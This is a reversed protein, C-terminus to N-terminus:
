CTPLLSRLGLFYPEYQNRFEQFFTSGCFRVIMMMLSCARCSGVKKGIRLRSFSFFIWGNKLGMKKRADRTSTLVTSTKICLVPQIHSNLLNSLLFTSICLSLFYNEYLVYTTLLSLHHPHEGFELGVCHARSKKQIM